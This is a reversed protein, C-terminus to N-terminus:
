SQEHVIEGPMEMSELFKCFQVFDGLRMSGTLSQKSTEVEANSDFAVDMFPATKFDIPASLRWEGWKRSIVASNRAIALFNTRELALKAIPSDAAMEDFNLCIVHAHSNRDLSELILSNIHQDGFSFGCTVLLASQKALVKGLREMLAQYPLKRSEEYKLYSPLILGGDGPASSKRIRKRATSSDVTWNISGHLKWIRLWERPPMAGESEFCEPFFYHQHSGIFGDFIPVSLRELARELLVDYNTTFIELPVKRNARKAWAAFKDHPTYEPISKEEPSVERIITECITKEIAKLDERSLGLSVDAAGMAGIKARIKSLINEVNPDKREELCEEVAAKWASEFKKGKANAQNACRSTLLQVAPVLPEFRQKEGPKSPPAINISSSTGAGFLFYLSQDHSALHQRLLDVAKRPDHFDM